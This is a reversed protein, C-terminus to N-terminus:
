GAGARARDGARARQGVRGGDSATSASSSTGRTSPRFARPRRGRDVLACPRGGPARRAGDHGAAHARARERGPDRGIQLVRQEDGLAARDTWRSARASAAVAARRAAFEDALPEAVGALDVRSARRRAPPRCRAALPRASRDRAEDPARGAGADDRPVRAADRRRAGRRRAARPLRRALLDADAARAVRQRHVRAPRPRADRPARAHPRVDARARRARRRRTDAVPEDFKGAAIREAARELRRLRRAFLSAGCYGVCSRSSCRSGRGRDPAARAGVAVTALTTTSRRRVLLSARDAPM